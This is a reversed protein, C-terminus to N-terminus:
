SHIVNMNTWFINKFIIITSPIYHFNNWRYGSRSWFIIHHQFIQKHCGDRKSHILCTITIFCLLSWEFFLVWSVIRIHLIILQQFEKKLLIDSKQQCAFLSTKTRFFYKLFIQIILFNEHFFQREKIEYKMIKIEVFYHISLATAPFIFANMYCVCFFCVTAYLIFCWIYSYVLEFVFYSRMCNRFQLANIDCNLFGLLLPIVSICLWLFGSAVVFNNWLTTWINRM